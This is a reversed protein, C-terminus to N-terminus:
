RFIIRVGVVLNLVGLLTFIALTIWYIASPRYAFQGWTSIIKGTQFAWVACGLFFLGAILPIFRVVGDPRM